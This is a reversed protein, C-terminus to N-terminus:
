NNPVRHWIIPAAAIIEVNFLTPEDTKSNVNLVGLNYRGAMRGGVLYRLIDSGDPLRVICERNIATEIESGYRLRGAVYDGPRFKPLMEDGAVFLVVADPYLEKFINAERAMCIEDSQLYPLLHHGDRIIFRNNERLTEVIYQYDKYRELTLAAAQPPTGKGLLVWNKELPLGEQRYIERCKELANKTLKAVGNEWAKLTTASLGYKKQIEKRSLRIIIKRIYKLRQHPTQQLAFDDDRM